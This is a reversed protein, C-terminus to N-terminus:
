ALKIDSLLHSEEVFIFIKFLVYGPLYTDMGSCFFFFAEFKIVYNRGCILSCHLVVLDIM